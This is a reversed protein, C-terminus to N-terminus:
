TIRDDFEGKLLVVIKLIVQLKLLIIDLNKNKEFIILFDLAESILKKCHIANSACDLMKLIVEILNILLISERM